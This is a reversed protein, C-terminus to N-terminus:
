ILPRSRLMSFTIPHGQNRFSRTNGAHVFNVFRLHKFRFVPSRFVLYLHFVASVLCDATTSTNTYCSADYDTAAPRSRKVNRQVHRCDATHANRIEARLSNSLKRWGPCVHETHVTAKRTVVLDKFEVEKWTTVSMCNLLPKLCPFM